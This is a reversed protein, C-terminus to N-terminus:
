RRDRAQHPSDDPPPHNQSATANTKDGDRWRSGNRNFVILRSLVRKDDVRPTGHSTTFVSGLGARQAACVCSNSM